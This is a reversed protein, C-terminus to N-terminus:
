VKECIARLSADRQLRDLLNRKLRYVDTVDPFEEPYRAALASPKLGQLLIWEVILRDRADRCHAEVCTVIQQASADRIVARELTGGEGLLEEPLPECFLRTRRQWQAAATAACSKLYALVQSLREAQELKEQTYYKWFAAFAEQTLDEQNTASTIGRISIWYRVLAYYHTYLEYWAADCRQVIARRFLALCFPEHAADARRQQCGQLLESVTLDEM